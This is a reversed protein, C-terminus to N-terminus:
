CRLMVSFKCLFFLPKLVYVISFFVLCLLLCPNALPCHRNQMRCCGGGAAYSNRKGVLLLSSRCVSKMEAIEMLPPALRLYAWLVVFIMSLTFPREEYLDCALRIASAFLYARALLGMTQWWVKLWRFSFASGPLFCFALIRLSLGSWTGLLAADTAM